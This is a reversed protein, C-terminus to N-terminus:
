RKKTHQGSVGKLFWSQNKSIEVFRYLVKGMQYTISPAAEHRPMYGGSVTIVDERVKVVKWVGRRNSKCKGIPRLQAAAVATETDSGVATEADDVVSTESDSM